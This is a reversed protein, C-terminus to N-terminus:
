CCSLILLLHHPLPFLFSPPLFPPSQLLSPYLTSPPLFPLLLLYVPPLLLSFLTSFLVLHPFLLCFFLPLSPPFSSFILRYHLLSPLSYLSSPLLCLSIPVPPPLSLSCVCVGVAEPTFTLTHTLSTNIERSPNLCVRYHNVSDVSPQSHNM